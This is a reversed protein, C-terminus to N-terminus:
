TPYCRLRYRAQKLRGAQVKKIERKRTVRCLKILFQEMQHAMKLAKLFIPYSQRVGITQAMFAEEPGM